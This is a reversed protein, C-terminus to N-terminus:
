VAVSDRRRRRMEVHERRSSAPDICHLAHSQPPESKPPVGLTGCVIRDEHAKECKCALHAPEARRRGLQNGYRGHRPCSHAVDFAHDTARGYLAQGLSVRDRSSASQLYPARKTWAKTNRRHEQSLM